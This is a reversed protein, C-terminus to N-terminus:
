QAYRYHSAIRVGLDPFQSGLNLFDIDHEMWYDEM